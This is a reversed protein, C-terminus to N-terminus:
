VTLHHPYLAGFGHDAPVSNERCYQEVEEALRYMEDFKGDVYIDHYVDWLDRHNFLVWRLMDRKYSGGCSLTEFWYQDTYDRTQEIIERWDTVGILIPAIFIGTQVGSKHIEQLAALKEQVPSSLDLTKRVEEDLTNVSMVARIESTKGIEQMLDIDRAMLAGKTIIQIKCEAGVLQELIWRTVRYRKEAPQYPDTVTGIQLNRGKIRAHDIKKDAWKVDVFSGWPEGEHGSWKAMYYAYCYTCAHECGAYPNICLDGLKSKAIYDRSEIERIIM